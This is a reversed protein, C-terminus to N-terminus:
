IVISKRKTQKEEIQLNSLFRYEFNLNAKRRPQFYKRRTQGAAALIYEPSPLTLFSIEM